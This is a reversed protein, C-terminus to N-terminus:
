GILGKVWSYLRGVQRVITGAKRLFNKYKFKEVARTRM